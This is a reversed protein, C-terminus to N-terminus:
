IIRSVDSVEKVVMKEDFKQNVIQADIPSNVEVIKGKEVTLGHKYIFKPTEGYIWQWDSYKRYYNRLKMEMEFHIQDSSVIATNECKFGEVLTSNIQDVTVRQNIKRLNIIPSKVSSVSKSEYHGQDFKLIEWLHSTDVDILLTGHHMKTSGRNYFANGSVKYSEYFLDNRPTVFLDIGYVQVAQVVLAFNASITRYDKHYIFSFNLNQSDHYVTGGGSLRRLIKVDHKQANVTNIEQWPNQNRGIVVAKENVYLFLIESVHAYHYFLCAEIAQNMYPDTSTSMVVMKKM